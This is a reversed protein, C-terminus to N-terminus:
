EEEESKNCLKFMSLTCEQQYITLFYYKFSEISEGGKGDGEGKGERLRHSLPVRHCFTAKKNYVIYSIHSTIWLTQSPRMNISITRKM